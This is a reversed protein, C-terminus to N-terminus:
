GRRHPQMLWSRGLVGPLHWRIIDAPSAPGGIEGHGWQAGAPEVPSLVEWGCSWGLAGSGDERSKVNRWAGSFVAQSPGWGVCCGWIWPMTFRVPSEWGTCLSGWTWGRVEMTIVEVQVNTPLPLAPQFRRALAVLLHLTALLDKSFIAPLPSPVLNSSLPGGDQPWM